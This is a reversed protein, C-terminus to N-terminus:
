QIADDQKTVRLNEEITVSRFDETGEFRQTEVTRIIVIRSVIQNINDGDLVKIWQRKHLFYVLFEGIHLSSRMWNAERLSCTLL